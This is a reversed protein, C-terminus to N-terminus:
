LSISQIPNLLHPFYHPFDVYAYWLAADGPNRGPSAHGAYYLILLSNKNDFGELFDLIRRKLATDPKHSPILYSQTTYNFRDEFVHRMRKIESTVGLDDVEWSLLLVHM